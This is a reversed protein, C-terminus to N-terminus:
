LRLILSSSYAFLIKSCALVQLMLRRARQRLTVDTDLGDALHSAGSHGVTDDTEDTGWTPTAVSLWLLLCTLTSQVYIKLRGKSKMLPSYEKSLCSHTQIKTSFQLM